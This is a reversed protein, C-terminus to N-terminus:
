LEFPAIAAGATNYGGAPGAEVLMTFIKRYTAQDNAGTRVVEALVGEPAAGLERMVQAHLTFARAEKAVTLASSLQDSVAPTLTGAAQQRQLEQALWAKGVGGHDDLAHTAEHAFKAATRGPDGQLDSRRLVITDTPPDYYAGAHANGSAAFQADDLVTVKAGAREIGALIAAGTASTRLQALMTDVLPRDAPTTLQLGPTATARGDLSSQGNAQRGPVIYGTVGPATSPAVPTTAVVPAPAAIPAPAAVPPAPTSVASPM